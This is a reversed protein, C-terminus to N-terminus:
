MCICFKHTRTDKERKQAYVISWSWAVKPSEDWEKLMSQMLKEFEEESSLLKTALMGPKLAVFFWEMLTRHSFEDGNSHASLSITHIQVNVFGTRPLRSGLVEVINHVLGNNSLLNRLVEFMRETHPGIDTKLPICPELCQVWGGPVLVRHIEQLGKEWEKRTLGGILLRQNVLKFRETWEDPLNTVSRQLFSVNSPVEQRFLRTNIDIGTLSITPPIAEALSLVWIGTGTGSELVQDGHELEMPAFVLKGDCVERTLLQNQLNLRDIESKDSPLIYHTKISPARLLVEPSRSEHLM